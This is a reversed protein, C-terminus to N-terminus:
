PGGTEIEALGVLPATGVRFLDMIGFSMSRRQQSSRIVFIRVEYKECAHWYAGNIGVQGERGGEHKM